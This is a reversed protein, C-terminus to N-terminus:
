PQKRRPRRVEAQAGLVRRRDPGGVRAQPGIVDNAALPEGVKILAGLEDSNAVRGRAPQTSPSAPPVHITPAPMSPRATGPASRGMFLGALIVVVLVVSAPLFLGSVALLATLILGGIIMVTKEGGGQKRKAPPPSLNAIDEPRITIPANQQPTNKRNDSAM